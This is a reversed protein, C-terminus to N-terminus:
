LHWDGAAEPQYFLKEIKLDRTGSPLSCRAVDGVRNGLLATGLPSLVSIWDEEHGAQEPYVVSCIVREDEDMDRVRVRSNMTVTDEPVEWSPVVRARRLERELANLYAGCRRHYRLTRILAKLRSRDKDTVFVLADRTKM